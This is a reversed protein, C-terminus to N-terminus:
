GGGCIEKGCPFSFGAVLFCDLMEFIIYADQRPTYLIKGSSLADKSSTQLNQRTAFLMKVLSIREERACLLAFQELCEEHVCSANFISEVIAFM